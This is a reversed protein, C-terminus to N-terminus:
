LTFPVFILTLVFEKEGRVPSLIAISNEDKTLQVKPQLGSVFQTHKALSFWTNELPVAVRLDNTFPSFYVVIPLGDRTAAVAVGGSGQTYIAGGGGDVTSFFKEYIRGEKQRIVGYEVAFLPPINAFYVVHINGRGDADVYPYTKNRGLPVIEYQFLGSYTISIEVPFKMNRARLVFIEGPSSIYFEAPQFEESGFSKFAVSKIDNAFRSTRVMFGLARTLFCSVGGEERVYYRVEILDSLGLTVREAFTKEGSFDVESNKFEIWFAQNIVPDYFAFGGMNDFNRRFEPIFSITFGPSINTIRNCTPDLKLKIRAFNRFPIDQGMYYMYGYSIDSNEEESAEGCIEVQTEDAPSFEGGVIGFEAPDYILISIKGRSPIYGARIFSLEGGEWKKIVRCRWIGLSDLFAEKIFVFRPIRQDAGASLYVIHPKGDILFINPSRGAIFDAIGEPPDVDELVWKGESDLTAYRLKGRAHDFFAVHPIGGDGLVFDWQRGEPIFQPGILSTIKSTEPIIITDEPVVGKQNWARGCSILAPLAFFLSFVGVWWYVTITATSGTKRKGMKGFIFFRLM